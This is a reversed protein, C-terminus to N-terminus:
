EALRMGVDIAVTEVQQLDCIALPYEGNPIRQAGVDGPGICRPDVAQQHQASDVLLLQGTGIEIAHDRARSHDWRRSHGYKAPLHRHEVMPRRHPFAPPIPFATLRLQTQCTAREGVSIHGSSASVARMFSAELSGRWVM